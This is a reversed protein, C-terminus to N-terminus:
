VSVKNIDFLQLIVVVRKVDKTQLVVSSVEIEKDFELSFCTEKGPKLPMFKDNSQV